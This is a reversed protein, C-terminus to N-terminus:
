GFTFSYLHVGPSVQLELIGTATQDTRVLEIGNPVGSVKMSKKEGNASWTLEGEGSAVLNVQKGKYALRLTGTAETPTISQSAVQWTGGLAFHDQAPDKAPITFSQVGDVLPGNDLRDVRASGLYTEPTRPGTARPANDATTFIPTPLQVNPNADVLLERVLKETTAEGGEGYHIHRLQGTADALYHAPWYHNKFNRWTVLDSDVAVPYTIGLKEAGAKVNDVEKEFAYEPTHVGIVTLGSDAYTEHLKQLGPVSRQCNICSYAWFDVLVVKGKRAAADIPTNNPTNFWANIGSIEALPGCNGLSTAGDVCTPGAPTAPDATAEQLAKDTSQQIGATWDPLLRQVHAPLDFVIGLALALMAVGAIIRIARQHTRFAAIREALGRGALAFFLLPVGTGIAFSLALAVTDLGIEGTSGAVSVAALVPGACPVYAAGLVVGLLFGNSPNKSGAKGFREFPKELIEMVKPVLMGIGILSLLVVGAWRISDQPLHALSLLTSGLLTFFTFSLVLGLVVLYPRWKSPAAPATAPRLPTSSAEATAVTSATQVSSGIALGGAAGAMPM